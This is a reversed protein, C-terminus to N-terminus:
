GSNRWPEDPPAEGSPAEDNAPPALFEEPPDVDLAECVRVIQVAIPEALFGETKEEADLLLDLDTEMDEGEDEGLAVRLRRMVVAKLRAKRAAADQKHDDRAAAMGERALRVRDRALKAELNVTLRVSRAVRHYAEAVARADELTEAAEAKEHLKRALSLGLETLEALVRGHREAMQVDTSM